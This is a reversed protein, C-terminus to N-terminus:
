RWRESLLPLVTVSMHALHAVHHQSSDGAYGLVRFSGARVVSKAELALVPKDGFLAAASALEVKRPSDSKPDAPKREGGLEAVIADSVAKTGAYEDAQLDSHTIAFLKKDAHALKAFSVYPAIRTPAIIKKSKDEYGAYLGEMVLLADLRQINSASSLIQLLAGYGAGFSSLAVRGCKAGELGRKEIREDIQAILKPFSLPAGFREMYPGSGQGLNAVVLVADLKAAAVSEQVLKANGSFHILMDYDKRTARFSPPIHLVVGAELVGDKGRDFAAATRDQAASTGVAAMSKAAASGVPANGAQSDADGDAAASALLLGVGTACALLAGGAGLLWLQAARSLGAFGRARQAAAPKLMPRRSLMALGVLALVLALSLTAVIGIIWRWAGSEAVRLLALLVLVTLPAAIAVVTGWPAAPLRDGVRAVVDAAFGRLEDLCQSTLGITTSLRRVPTPAAAAAADEDEAGMVLTGGRTRVPPENAAAEPPESPQSKPAAAEPPESEEANAVVIAPLPEDRAVLDVPRFARECRACRVQSALDDAGVTLRQGCGPCKFEVVSGTM